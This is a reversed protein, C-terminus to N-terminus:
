PWTRPAQVVDSFVIWLYRLYACIFVM